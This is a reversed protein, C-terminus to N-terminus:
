SPILDAADKIEIPCRESRRPSANQDVFLGLGAAGPRRVTFVGPVDPRRELMIPAVLNPRPFCAALTFGVGKGPEWM